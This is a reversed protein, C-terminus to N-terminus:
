IRLGTLRLTATGAGAGKWRLTEIVENNIIDGNWVQFPDGISTQLYLGGGHALVTVSRVSGGILSSLNITTLDTVSTDLNVTLGINDRRLENRIAVLYGSIDKTKKLSKELLGVVIGNLAM